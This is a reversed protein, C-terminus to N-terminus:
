SREGQFLRQRLQEKGRHYHTRATGVSIGLVRSAEEVTLDQYFVLHLVERQRAPLAQLAERLARRAESECIVSEPSPAPDPGPRGNSWRGLALARLWRKRRRGVATRRIVAFRWTKLSSRGDFKARGDLIKLYTEQLVEEAEDRDWDCCLLAWGFSAPHLGELDQEVRCKAMKDRRTPETRFILPAVISPIHGDRPHVGEEAECCIGAELVTLM